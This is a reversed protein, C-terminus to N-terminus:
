WLQLELQGSRCAVSCHLSNDETCRIKQNNGATTTKSWHFYLSFCWTARHRVHKTSVELAIKMKEWGSEGQSQCPQMVDSDTSGYFHQTQITPVILHHTRSGKTAPASWIVDRHRMRRMQLVKHDPQARNSMQVLKENCEWKFGIHWGDLSKTMSQPGNELNRKQKCHGQKCM